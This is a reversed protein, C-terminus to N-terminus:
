LSDIMTSFPLPYPRMRGGRLKLLQVEAHEGLGPGATHRLHMRLHLFLITPTMARLNLPPDGMPRDLAPLDGAAGLSHCVVNSCQWGMLHYDIEERAMGAYVQAWYAEIKQAEDETVRVRFVAVLSGEPHVFKPMELMVENLTLDAAWAQTPDDWWPGAPSSLGALRQKVEVRDPGFDWYQQEVAIGSHGVIGRPIASLAIVITVEKGQELTAPNGMSEVGRGATACGMGMLCVSAFAWRLVGTKKLQNLRNKM